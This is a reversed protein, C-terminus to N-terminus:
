PSLQDAPLLDFKAEPSTRSLICVGGAGFTGELAFIYYSVLIDEIGDGNLDARLIEWYAGGMGAYRLSVYNPSREDVQVQKDDVLYQITMGANHLKLIEDETDPSLYPLLTVPLINFSDIGKRPVAIFTADAAKAVRMAMIFAYAREFFAQEKIAYTNAAFYGARIAEAWERPTTVSISESQSGNERLLDLSDLGHPRPCIPEDLLAEADRQNLLGQVIRSSFTIGSIAEFADVGSEIQMLIKRVDNATIEGVELAIHLAALVSEGRSRKIGRREADFAFASKSAAIELYYLATSKKFLMGTKRNNCRKHCPLLNNWHNLDFDSPLDYDALIREFEIRDNAFREPIIHDIELLDYMIPTSCYICKRQHADWIAIRRATPLKTTSM